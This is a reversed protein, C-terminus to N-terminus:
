DTSTNETANDVEQKYIKQKNLHKCKGLELYKDIMFSLNLEKTMKENYEAEEYFDSIM